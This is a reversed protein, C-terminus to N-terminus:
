VPTCLEACLISTLSAQIGAVPRLWSQRGDFISYHLVPQCVGLAGFWTVDDTLM